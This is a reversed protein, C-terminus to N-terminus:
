HSKCWVLLRGLITGMSCPSEDHVDGFGELIVVKLMQVLVHLAGAEGGQDAVAVVAQQGSVQRYQQVGVLALEARDVAVQRSGIALPLVQLAAALRQQHKCTRIGVDAGAIVRALVVIGLHHRGPVVDRHM